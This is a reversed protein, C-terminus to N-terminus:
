SGGTRRTPPTSPCGPPGAGRAELFRAAATTKGAGAGAIVLLVRHGGAARAFAEDVRPRPILVPALPPPRLKAVITRRSRM